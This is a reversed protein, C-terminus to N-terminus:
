REYCLLEAIEVANLAAGRLLQDGAVVFSVANPFARHTRIRGVECNWKGSASLPTPYLNQEPDDTVEIGGAMALCERAAFEGVPKEFFATVSVTHARRVPVRFCTASATFGPHDLIKRGERELKDEEDTYGDDRFTGIHPFLNGALQHPFVRPVVDEGRTIQENQANLEALAQAGAGSAAQMSVAEIHRVTFRRHLPGLAMMVIATTCNPNAVLMHGSKRLSVGNVDPVVLPVGEDMRFASTNDIVRCNARVAKRAWERSVASGASFFAVEATKFSTDDLKEVTISKGRFALTTGASRESGFLRLDDLPFKREQLVSLLERGVAGTAGVIAVSFM